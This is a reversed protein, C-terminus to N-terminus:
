AAERDCPTKRVRPDLWHRAPSQVYPAPGRGIGLCARPAQSRARSGRELASVPEMRRHRVRQGDNSPLDGGASGLGCHSDQHSEPRPAAAAAGAVDAAVACAPPRQPSDGDSGEVTGHLLDTFEVTTLPGYEGQTRWTRGGDVTAIISGVLTGSSAVAWGHLGDVFDVGVLPFGAGDRMQVTWHGGASRTHLILSCLGDTTGVAWGEDHSVFSRAAIEDGSQRYM